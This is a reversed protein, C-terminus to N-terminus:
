RIAEDREGYIVENRKNVQDTYQDELDKKKDQYEVYTIKKQLYSSELADMKERYDAYHPDKLIEGPNDVYSEFNHKPYSCGTALVVALVLFFKKM